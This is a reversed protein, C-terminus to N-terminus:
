LGYGGNLEKSDTVDAQVAVDCHFLMPQKEMYSDYFVYVFIKFYM